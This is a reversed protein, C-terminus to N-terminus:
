TTLAYLFLHLLFNFLFLSSFINSIFFAFFHLTILLYNFQFHLKYQFNRSASFGREADFRIDLIEELRNLSDDDLQFEDNTQIYWVYVCMDMWNFLTSAKTIIQFHIFFLGFSYGNQIRQVSICQITLIIFFFM